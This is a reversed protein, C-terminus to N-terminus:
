VLGVSVTPRQLMHVTDMERWVLLTCFTSISIFFVFLICSSLSQVVHWVMHRCRNVVHQAHINDHHRWWRTTLQVMKDGGPNQIVDLRGYKHIAYALLAWYDIRGCNQQKSMFLRWSQFEALYTRNELPLCVANCSYILRSTVTGFVPV